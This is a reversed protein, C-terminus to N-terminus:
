EPVDLIELSGLTKANETVFCEIGGDSPTIGCLFTAGVAITEFRVDEPIDIEGEPRDAWCRPVGDASLGCATGWGVGIEEFPGDDSPMGLGWCEARGDETLACAGKNADVQVFDGDPAELREGVGSGWCEVGGDDDVGCVYSDGLAIQTFSTNPTELISPSAGTCRANGDGNLTCTTRFGAVVQTVGELGDLDLAGELSDGECSLPEGSVAVCWHTDGAAIDTVIGMLPARAPIEETFRADGWCVSEGNARVACATFSSADIQTFRHGDEESGPGCGGLLM